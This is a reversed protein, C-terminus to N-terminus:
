QDVSKIHQIDVSRQEFGMLLNITAKNVLLDDSHMRVTGFIYIYRNLCVFECECWRRFSIEQCLHLNCQLNMQCKIKVAITQTNTHTQTSKAVDDWACVCVCYICSKHEKTQKNIQVNEMHERILIPHKKKNNNNTEYQM